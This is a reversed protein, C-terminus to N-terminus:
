FRGGKASPNVWAIFATFVMTLLQGPLGPAILDITRFNFVIAVSVIGLIIAGLDQNEFDIKKM